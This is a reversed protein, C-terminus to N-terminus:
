DRWGAYYPDDQRLPLAVSRGDRAAAYIATALEIARRGDALRVRGRRNGGALTEDVAAFFGAFGEPAAAIGALAADVAGQDEPARAAFRWGAGGPHYPAQGSEATLREFCFKLRSTNEAAGLTISSTALAGSAMELAVATCDETEIPNVRTGAFGAVRAVPGLAECLLDHAHTAHSLVAGGLEGAWTGRWANDYYAADRNWHTEVTAILPRGALGQAILHRLQRFGHGYRYQFVPFVRRGAAAAAAELRDVADLSGAIPKECVAHKGAGLARIATEFHLSPPLCVDVIEIDSSALVADLDTEARADPARAALEAARARDLDCVAVVRFRGPHARYGELHAAGIGAGVIAVGHPAGEPM